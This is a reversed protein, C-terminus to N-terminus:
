VRADAPVAAAPQEPPDMRYGVGRITRVMSELGHARLKRRLYGIYVDVV